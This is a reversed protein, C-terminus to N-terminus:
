FHKFHNNYLPIIITGYAQKEFAICIYPKIEMRGFKEM